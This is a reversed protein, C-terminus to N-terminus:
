VLSWVLAIGGTSIGMDTNPNVLSLLLRIMKDDKSELRVPISAMGM